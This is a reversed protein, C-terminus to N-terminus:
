PGLKLKYHLVAYFSKPDITCTTEREFGDYAPRSHKLHAARQKRGNTQEMRHFLAGVNTGSCMSCMCAYYACLLKHLCKASKSCIRITRKLFFFLVCYTFCVHKASTFLRRSHQCVARRTVHVEHSAREGEQLKLANTCYMQSQVKGRM